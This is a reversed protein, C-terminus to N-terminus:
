ALRTRQKPNYPHTELFSKRMLKEEADLGKNLERLLHEIASAAELLLMHDPSTGDGLRLREILDKM